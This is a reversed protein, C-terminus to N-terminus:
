YSKLIVLTHNPTRRFQLCRHQDFSVEGCTESDPNGVAKLLRAIRTADQEHLEGRCAICLLMDDLLMIGLHASNSRMSSDLLADM